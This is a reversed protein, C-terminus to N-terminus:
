DGMKITIIDNFNIHGIEEEVANYLTVVNFSYEASWVNKIVMDNIILDTYQVIVIGNKGKTNFFDIAEWNDKHYKEEILNLIIEYEKDFEAENDFPTEQNIYELEATVTDRCNYYFEDDSGNYKWYEATERAIDHRQTNTLEM